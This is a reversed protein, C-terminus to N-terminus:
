IAPAGIVRISESATGGDDEAFELRFGLDATRPQYYVHGTRIEMSDLPVAKVLNGDRIVLFGHRSNLANTSARNWEVDLMGERNNVELGIPSVVPVGGAEVTTPTRDGPIQPGGLSWMTVGVAMTWTAAIHLWSRLANGPPPATPKFRPPSKRKPESSEQAPKARGPNSPPAPHPAASEVTRESANRRDREAEKAEAKAHWASMVVFPREVKPIEIEPAEHEPTEIEPTESQLTEAQIADIGPQPPDALGIEPAPLWVPEEHAEAELPRTEELEPEPRPEVIAVPEREIDPVPEAVPEPSRQDSHEEQIFSEPFSQHVPQEPLPQAPPSGQRLVDANFVFEGHEEEVSTARGRRFFLLGSHKGEATSRVILFVNQNRKLLQKAAKSDEPDIAPWGRRQSRFFGVVKRPGEGGGEGWRNVMQALREDQGFRVGSSERTYGALEYDEIVVTSGGDSVLRGVLLGTVDCPPNMKLGHAIDFELHEILDLPLKVSVSKGRIQWGYIEIAPRRGTVNGRRATEPVPQPRLWDGIVHKGAPKSGM